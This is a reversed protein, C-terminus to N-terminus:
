HNGKIHKLIQGVKKQASGGASYLVKLFEVTLAAHGEIAWDCDIFHSNRAQM